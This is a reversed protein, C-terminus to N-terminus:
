LNIVEGKAQLVAEIIAEPLTPHALVMKKLEPVTKGLLGQVVAILSSANSGIISAGVLKDNELYVKVFGETEGSTKAKGNAIFPFKGTIGEKKGVSAIEPITFICNPIEDYNIVSDVGMINEAAVIAEKIAM